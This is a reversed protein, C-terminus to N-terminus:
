EARLAEAPDNGAARRAPFLVAALAVGGLLLIALVSTLPDSASVQFRLESGM